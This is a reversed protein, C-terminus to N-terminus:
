GWLEGIFRVMRPLVNIHLFKEDLSSNGQYIIDALNGQSSYHIFPDQIWTKSIPPESLTIPFSLNHNIIYDPLTIGGLLRPLAFHKNRLIFLYLKKELAQIIIEKWPQPNEPNITIYCNANQTPLNSGSIIEARRGFPGSGNIVPEVKFSKVWEKPILGDYTIVDRM